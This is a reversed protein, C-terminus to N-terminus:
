RTVICRTARARSSTTPAAVRAACDGFCAGEKSGPSVSPNTTDGFRATRWAQFRFTNQCTLWCADRPVNRSIGGCVAASRAWIFAVSSANVATSFAVGLPDRPSPKQTM